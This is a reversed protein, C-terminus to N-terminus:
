KLIGTDECQLRFAIQYEQYSVKHDEGVKSSTRLTLSLQDIRPLNIERGEKGKFYFCLSFVGTLILRRQTNASKKAARLAAAKNLWNEM